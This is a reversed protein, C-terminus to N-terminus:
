EQTGSQTSHSSQWGIQPTVALRLEGSRYLWYQTAVLEHHYSQFHRTVLKM